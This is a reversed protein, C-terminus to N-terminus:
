SNIKEWVLDISNKIEKVMNLIKRETLDPHKDYQKKTKQYLDTIAEQLHDVESDYIKIMVYKESRNQDFEISQIVEVM